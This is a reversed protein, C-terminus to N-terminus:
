IQEILKIKKPVFNHYFKKNGNSDTEFGNLLNAITQLEHKPNMKTSIKGWVERSTFRVFFNKKDDILRLLIGSADDTVTALIIQCNYEKSSRHSNM